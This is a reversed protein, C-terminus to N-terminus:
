QEGEIKAHLRRLEQQLYAEEINRTDCWLGEDEAQRNVLSQIESLRREAAEARDQLPKIHEDWMDTATSGIAEWIIEADILSSQSWPLLLGDGERRPVIHFHVHPITQTATLGNSQIINCPNKEYDAVHAVGAILRHLSDPTLHWLYEAHERPVVLLHGPTVPNLPEFVMWDNGRRQLEKPAPAKGSWIDCFVCDSM